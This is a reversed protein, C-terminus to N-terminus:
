CVGREVVEECTSAPLIEVSGAKAFPEIFRNVSAQDSSEVILYLTHAGQIVAEGQIKISYTAANASSLHNLLMSGMQRNRAPCNEPTHRHQVVFLAM